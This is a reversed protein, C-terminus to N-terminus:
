GIQQHLDSGHIEIKSDSLFHVTVLWKQQAGAFGTTLQCQYTRGTKGQVGSPCSVSKVTVKGNGHKNVYSKILSEGDSKSDISGCAGLCVAACLVSGALVTPKARRLSATM